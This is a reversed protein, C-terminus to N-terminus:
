FLNEPHMLSPMDYVIPEDKQESFAFDHIAPFSLDDKSWWSLEWNGRFESVQIGLKRLESSFVEKDSRYIDWFEKTPSAKRLLRLGRKTQLRMPQSFDVCDLLSSLTM